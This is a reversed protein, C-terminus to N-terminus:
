LTKNLANVSNDLNNRSASAYFTKGNFDFKEVEGNSVLYDMAAQVMANSEEIKQKPLWWGLIGELCDFAKPHSKLYRSIMDAVMIVQKTEQQSQNSM